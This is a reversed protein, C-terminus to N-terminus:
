LIGNWASQNTDTCADVRGECTCITEHTLNETQSAAQWVDVRFNLDVKVEESAQQTDLGLLAALLGLHLSQLAGFDQHNVNTGGSSTTLHQSYPIIQGLNQQCLRDAGLFAFLDCEASANILM